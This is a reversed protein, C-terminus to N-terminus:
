RRADRAIDRAAQLARMAGRAHAHLRIIDAYYLLRRLAAYYVVREKADIAYRCRLMDDFRTRAAAIKASRRQRPLM